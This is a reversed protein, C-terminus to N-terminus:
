RMIKAVAKWSGDWKEGNLFLQFNKTTVRVNPLVNLRDKTVPTGWGATSVFLKGGEIKAIKNGHLYLNNGDTSSNAIKKKEGNLFAMAIEKSVKRAM